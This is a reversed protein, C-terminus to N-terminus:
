EDGAPGFGGWCMKILRKQGTRVDDGGIFRDPYRRCLESYDRGLWARDLREVYSREVGPKPDSQLVALLDSITAEGNEPWEKVTPLGNYTKFILREIMCLLTYGRGTEFLANSIEPHKFPKVGGRNSRYEQPLTFDNQLWYLYSPLEAIMPKLLASKEEESADESFIEHPKCFKLMLMKDATGDALPPLVRISEPDTNCCVIGRWHTDIYETDKNKKSFSRRITSTLQKLEASIAKRVQMKTNSLEDDIVQLVYPFRDSNFQTGGTMNQFPQAFGGGFLPALMKHIMLTKGARVTGGFVLCLGQTPKSKYLGELAHQVWGHFYPRQDIGTEPDKFANDFFEGLHDWTGPVPTMIEPEREILFQKGFENRQIGKRWGAVRDFVFELRYNTEIEYLARELESMAEGDNKKNSKNFPAARLHRQAEDKTKGMWEFDDGRPHKFYYTKNYYWALPEATDRTVFDAAMAAPGGPPPTTKTTM